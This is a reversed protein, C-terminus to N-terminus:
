SGAVKVRRSKTLGGVDGGQCTDVVLLCCLVASSISRNSCGKGGFGGVVTAIGICCGACVVPRRPVLGHWRSPAYWLTGAMDATAGTGMRRVAVAVAEAGASPGCVGTAAVTDAVPDVTPVAARSCGGRDRVPAVAAAVAEDVAVGVPCSDDDVGGGDVADGDGGGADDDNDDDRRIARGSGSESLVVVTSM